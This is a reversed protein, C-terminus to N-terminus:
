LFSHSPIDFAKGTHLSCVSKSCLIGSAQFMQSGIHNLLGSLYHEQQERTLQAVKWRRLCGRLLGYLLFAPTLVFIPPRSTSRNLAVTSATTHFSLGTALKLVADVSDCAAEHLSAAFDDTTASTASSPLRVDM